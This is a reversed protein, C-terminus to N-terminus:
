VPDLIERRVGSRPVDKSFEPCRVSKLQPGWIVIESLCVHHSHGALEAPVTGFSDDNSVSNRVSDQQRDENFELNIVPETIGSRAKEEGVVFGAVAPKSFSFAVITLLLFRIM